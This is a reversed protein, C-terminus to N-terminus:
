RSTESQPGMEGFSAVLDDFAPAPVENGFLVGPPVSERTHRIIEATAAGHTRCLYRAYSRALVLSWDTPRMVGRNRPILHQPVLNLRLPVKDDAGPRPSNIGALVLPPDDPLTWIPVTPVAAGPPAIVEGAPPEVPLDPALASALLEQRHRVWPNAGPDPFRLTELLNNGEDRLRVEFEVGPTDGPRNTVFHYSHAVRLYKGHLTALPAAAHAFYPPEDLSRGVPTPWPGSPTDLVPLTIAVLHYAIAASGAAVLWRPLPSGGAL